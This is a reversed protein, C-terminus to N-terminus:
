VIELLRLPSFFSSEEFVQYVIGQLLAALIVVLIRSMWFSFIGKVIVRSGNKSSITENENPM